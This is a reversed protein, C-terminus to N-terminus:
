RFKGTKAPSPSERVPLTASLLSQACRIAEAAEVTAFEARAFKALDCRNLLNQWEEIGRDTLGAQHLEASMERTTRGVADVQYKRQLYGRIMAALTDALGRCDGNLSAMRALERRAWEEPAPVPELAKPRRLWLIIALLGLSGIV